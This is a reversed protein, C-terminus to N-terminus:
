VIEEWLLSLHEKKRKDQCRILSVPGYIKSLAFEMEELTAKQPEIIDLCKGDKILVLQDCFELALMPDHLCIIGAKENEGIMKKVKKLIKYRNHFDLASDPEDLLLLSTNEILTRALFVLQKQGASLTLFDTNLYEALGVAEIAEEAMRRHKKTPQQLLKLEPNFGMMVIDIIPISIDIGSKQSIYSIRKALEKVSMDELIEGDLYSHGRHKLLNGISKLLTTKGCGNTGLLGTLSHKEVSFSIDSIVENNGYSTIINEARFFASM